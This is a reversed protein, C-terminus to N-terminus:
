KRRGQSLEDLTVSAEAVGLKQAQEMLARADDYREQRIALAGRAYIAQPSDGAKALYRQAAALDDRRMAANAANLNALQDTPYMRVATEYVDSFEDSGPEYQNAVLYFEDLSLKQPQSHMVREIEKPDSFSRIVYEVRYDTHRLAPYCNQLLFRYDDPYTTKIKREKADPDMDTDILALIQDRHTLNSKAVYERLGAWDEPEFDTAIVGPAFNYLRQIYDKLADTRGIALQRNHSYPSEPSAFGKLWVKTITIDSDDRVSDITAQIKGLEATNRRYDPNIATKNVPFDIFASGDLHREKRGQGEPNVYVLTPFFGLRETFNALLAQDEDLLSNCCGYLDRYLKLDAGNMWDAYPVVQSYEVVDPRRSARYSIEEPGTLMSEGGRIYVYYRQRGYIGVSPLDISDNGNVLRPTLLVARSSKVKLDKLGLNMGVTLYNGDHALVVDSIDVGEVSAAVPAADQASAMLALSSIALTIFFNKKM